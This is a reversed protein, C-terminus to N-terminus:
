PVYRIFRDTVYMFRTITQRENARLNTELYGAPAEELVIQPLFVDYRTRKNM